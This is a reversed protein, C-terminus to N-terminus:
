ADRAGGVAQEIRQRVRKAMARSDLDASVPDPELFAIRCALDDSRLLELLHSLLSQDGTWAAHAGSYSLAVPHVVTDIRPESQALTQVVAFHARHFPAVGDGATTTGEPFVLVRQGSRLREVIRANVGGVSARRARDVFITRHLRAMFGVFPWSEVERKALFSTDVVSMLALIDLWSVHNAILLARGPLPSNGSLSVRVGLSRLVATSFLRSGWYAGPRVRLHLWYVPALAMAMVALTLALSVGRALPVMVGLRGRTGPRSEDASTFAGYTM